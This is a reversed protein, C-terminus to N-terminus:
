LSPSIAKEGVNRGVGGRLPKPPGSTLQMEALRRPAAKKIPMGRSKNKSDLPKSRTLGFVNSGRKREGKESPMTSMSRFIVAAKEKM